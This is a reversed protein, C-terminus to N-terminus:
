VSCTNWCGGSDSVYNITLIGYNGEENDDPYKIPVSGCIRCGHDWLAQVLSIVSSGLLGEQTGQPFICIADGSSRRLSAAAVSAPPREGVSHQCFIKEGNQYMHTANPNNGKLSSVMENITGYESLCGFSGKCNIGNAYSLSTFVEFLLFASLNLWLM